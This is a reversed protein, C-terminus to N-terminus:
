DSHAFQMWVAAYKSQVTIKIQVAFVPPAYDWGNHGSLCQLFVKRHFIFCGPMGQVGIGLGSGKSGSAGPAGKGIDECGAHPLSFPHEETFRKLGM